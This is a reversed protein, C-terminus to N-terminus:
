ISNSDGDIDLDKVEEFVEDVIHPYNVLNFKKFESNMFGIGGRYSVIRIPKSFYKGIIDSVIKITNYERQTLIMMMIIFKCKDLTTENM